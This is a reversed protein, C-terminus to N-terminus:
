RWRLTRFEAGGSGRYASDLLRVWKPLSILCSAFISGDM